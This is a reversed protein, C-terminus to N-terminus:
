GLAISGVAVACQLRSPVRTSYLGLETGQFAPTDESEGDSMEAPVM